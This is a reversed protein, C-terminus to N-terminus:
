LDALRTGTFWCHQPNNVVPFPQGSLVQERMRRIGGEYYNEFYRSQQGIGLAAHSKDNPSVGFDSKKMAPGIFHHEDSEITMMRRDYVMPYGLNALAHGMICDEFGLGDCFEPWGGVSLFAEVPGCLSCGYLWKGTCPTIDSRVHALRNDAAKLDYSKVKGDEVQLNNAKLYAGFGFRNAAMHEFVANLWGPMLVSLDDVYALYSTRTLCLATNRANSAAFWDQKTLRHEGQWVSPKPKYVQATPIFAWAGNSGNQIADPFPSIVIVSIPTRVLQNYLSHWFWEIKPDARSTIYAITLNSM